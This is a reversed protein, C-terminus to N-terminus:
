QNNLTWNWFIWWILFAILWIIFVAVGWSFLALQTSFLQNIQFGIDRLVTDNKTYVAAILKRSIVSGDYMSVALFAWGPIFLLYLLRTRRSQPRIYSTSVLLLISGGLIALGWGSLKNSEDVVSRVGELLQQDPM